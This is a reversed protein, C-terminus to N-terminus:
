YTSLARSIMMACNGRTINNDANFNKYLSDNVNLINVDFIKKVDISYSKDTKLKLYIGNKVTKFTFAKSVCVCVEAISMYSKPRFTKDSFSNLIGKKVAALIYDKEKTKGIDKLGKKNETTGSLNLAKCIIEAFEARTILDNPRFKEGSGPNLINADHLHRIYSETEIGKIDKYPRWNIDGSKSLIIRIPPICGKLDFDLVATKPAKDKLEYGINLTKGNEVYFYSIVIGKAEAQNSWKLTVKIKNNSLVKTEYVLGHAYVSQAYFVSFLSILIILILTKKMQKMKKMEQMIRFKDRLGNDKTFPLHSESNGNEGRKPL